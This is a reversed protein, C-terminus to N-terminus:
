DKERPRNYDNKKEEPYGPLPRWHTIKVGCEKEYPECGTHMGFWMGDRLEATVPIGKLGEPVLVPQVLVWDFEPSEPLADEVSIWGDPATNAEAARRAQLEELADVTYLSTLSQFKAARGRAWNLLVDLRANTLKGKKLDM